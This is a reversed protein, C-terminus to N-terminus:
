LIICSSYSLSDAGFRRFHSSTVSLDPFLPCERLINVWLAFILKLFFTNGRLTASGHFLRGFETICALDILENLFLSSLNQDVGPLLIRNHIEKLLLLHFRFNHYLFIQNQLDSCPPILQIRHDSDDYPIMLYPIIIRIYAHMCAYM